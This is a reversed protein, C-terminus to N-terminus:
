LLFLGVLVGAAGAVLPGRLPVTGNDDTSWRAKALLVCTGWGVPLTVLVRPFSERVQHGIFVPDLVPDLKPAFIVTLGAFWAAAIKFTRVGIRHGKGRPGRALWVLVGALGLSITMLMVHSLLHYRWH